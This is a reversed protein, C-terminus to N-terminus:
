SNLKQPYDEIFCVYNFGHYVKLGHDKKIREKLKTELNENKPEVEAYAEKDSIGAKKIIYEKSKYRFPLESPAIILDM